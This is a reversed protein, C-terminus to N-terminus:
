AQVNDAPSLAGKKRWENKKLIEVFELLSIIDEEELEEAVSILRRMAPSYVPKPSTEGTILYRLSVGLYDAIKLADDAQPITDRCLWSSVGSTSKGTIRALDKQKINKETMLTTTVEWFNTM